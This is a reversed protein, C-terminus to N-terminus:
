YESYFIKRFFDIQLIETINGKRSDTLFPAFLCLHPQQQHHHHHHNTHNCISKEILKYERM